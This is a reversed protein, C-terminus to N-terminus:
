QVRRVLDREAELLEDRAARYQEAEGPYRIAHLTGMVSRRLWSRSM